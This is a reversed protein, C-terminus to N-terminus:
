PSSGFLRDLFDRRPPPQQQAEPAAPAVARARPPPPAPAPRQPAILPTTVPLRDQERAVQAPAVQAPAPTAARAPPTSTPAVPPSATVASSGQRGTEGPAIGAGPNVGPSTAAPPPNGVPAPSQEQRAREEAQRLRREEALREQELRAKREEEARLEALRKAEEAARRVRQEALTRLERNFREKERIDAELEEVRRMERDVSRMTLYSTLPGVDIERVPAAIPGDFSLGVSPVAGGLSDAWNRPALNFAADLTGRALDAVITGGVAARSSQVALSGTRLVGAVVTFAGTIEGVQLSGSGLNAAFVERLKPADLAVGSDAARLVFDFAAPELGRLEADRISLTGGGNMAAAIASLSRGTGELDASVDLKGIAVAQGARRWVLESLLAGDLKVHMDLTAEGGTRSLGASGTLKGGALDATFQELGLRGPRMAIRFRGRRAELGGALRLRGAEIAVSGTLGETLSPSFSSAPWAGSPSRAAEAVAPSGLGVTALGDLSMRDFSLSGDVQTLDPGKLAIRGRVAGDALTGDLNTLVIEQGSRVIEGNLRLPVAAFDGPSPRGFAALLAGADKGSLKVGLNAAGLRMGSLAVTGRASLDFGLAAGGITVKIDGEAPGNAEISLRGPVPTPPAAVPLGLQALLRDGRAAELKGHAAVVRGGGQGAVEFTVDVTTAGASGTLKAAAAGRETTVSLSLDAPALVEARKLLADAWLVASPVRRLAAAIGDLRAAEIRADLRSAAAGADFALSGKATVRAGAIDLADLRRVDVGSRTVDVDAFVKRASVGGVELAGAELKLAIEASGIGEAAPAGLAALAAVTPEDLRLADAVLDASIKAAAAGDAAKWGIRGRAKADDAAISLNGIEVRKRTADVDGQVSLRRVALKTRPRDGGGALWQLLTSLDGADLAVRGRYGPARPDLTGSTVLDASGPLRARAAVIRWDTRTTELDLDIDQLLDGAVVAGQVEVRLRGPLAALGSGSFLEAVRGAVEAPTPKVDGRSLARDFDLQRSNLKAEFRPEAGIALTGQGAVKLAKDDPGYQLDFTEAEVRALDARIRAQFRWPVAGAEAAAADGRPAPRAVVFAGEFRPSGGALSVAGDFDVTRPSGGPELELKIRASQQDNLKGMNLGISWPAGDFQFAAELKFPGRLSAAEGGGNIRDIVYHAGTRPDLVSAAGNVIEFRRLTIAEANAPGSAAVVPLIPKGNKDLQLVLRPGDLKMENVHFEGKLLPALDLRLRFDAIELKSPGEGVVVDRLRVYPSPLLRAEVDGGVKMPLGLSTRAQEEFVSRYANWDVFFPGVLAAALALVLAIGLATLTGNM